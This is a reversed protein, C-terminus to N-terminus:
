DSDLVERVKRALADPPFPKQLFAVTRDRIQCQVVPDDTYGSMLLVKIGPRLLAAREALERGGMGPMVIDSLLIHIDTGHSTLLAVAEDGSAAEVVNYGRHRLVAGELHRVAADDEVLLVRESGGADPSSAADAPLSSQPVPAVPLCFAFISGEGPASEAAIGGGSQRLIGYSTALGLGTGQGSPKTTFFPEFVRALTAPEMGEGTDTVTVVVYAGAPVDFRNAPDAELDRTSVEIGLRGGMPMADRANVALNVVVQELQGTDALVWAPSPAPTIVLQINEGILRRLMSGMQRVVENADLTKPALLQRRSFALLQRTLAAARECAQRVQKINQFLVDSPDLDALAMDTYGTMVTLLNNFDHAVGGALRGVAEMRQAQRLRDEIDRLTREAEKRETIDRAVGLLGIVDGREDTIQSTSLRILIEAGDKRCNFLEGTWGGARTEELVQATVSAPTAPSRVLSVHQGIVEDESYGYGELFANNVFTFRDDLGTVCIMEQTSQVARVLLRTMAAARKLEAHELELRGNADALDATRAALELGRERGTQLLRQREASDPFSRTIVILDRGQLRLATAEWWEGARMVGDEHWPGSRVSTGDSDLRWLAEADIMFNELFRSAGPLEARLWPPTDCAAALRGDAARELVAIDLSQLVGSLLSGPGSTLDADHASQQVPRRRRDFASADLLLVWDADGDRFLYVDAPAGEGMRVCPLCIEPGVTPLLGQLAVVQDAASRGRELGSLGYAEVHGGWGALRGDTSVELYAPSRDRGVSTLLFAIVPRPLELM